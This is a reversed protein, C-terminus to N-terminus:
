PLECGVAQRELQVPEILSPCHLPEVEGREPIFGSVLGKWGGGPQDVAAPCSGEM